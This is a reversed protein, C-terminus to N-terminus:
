KIWEMLQPNNRLLSLFLKEMKIVTAEKADWDMAHSEAHIAEHLLTSKMQELSQDQSIRILSKPHDCSGALDKSTVKPLYLVKYETGGFRLKTPGM